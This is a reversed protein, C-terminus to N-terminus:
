RLNIVDDAFMSIDGILNTSMHKELATFFAAINASRLKLSLVHFFKTLVLPDGYLLLTSLSDFVFCDAGSGTIIEEIGTDLEMLSRPSPILLVKIDPEPQKSVADIFFLRRIDVGGNKFARVIVNHPKNLSVYCISKYKKTLIQVVKQLEQYHREAPTVLLVIKNDGIRSEIEGTEM